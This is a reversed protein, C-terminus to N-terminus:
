IGGADLYGKMFGSEEMSLEDNDSMEELKDIDYFVIKDEDEYIRLRKMKEYGWREIIYQHYKNMYYYEKQNKLM